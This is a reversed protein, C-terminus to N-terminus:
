ILGQATVSILTLIIALGFVAGLGAILVTAFAKGLNNFGHLVDIFHLMMYFMFGFGIMTLLSGLAPLVVFVVMQGINIVIGIIQLWTLLLLAGPFRGTGGLMQGTFYLAFVMAALISGLAIALGFPTLTTLPTEEPLPALAMSAVMMLTSLCVVLAFFSWLVGRNLRMENLYVAAGRPNVFSMRLLGAFDVSQDNM